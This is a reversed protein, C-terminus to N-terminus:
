RHNYICAGIKPTIRYFTIIKYKSKGNRLLLVYPRSHLHQLPRLPRHHAGAPEGQLLVLGPDAGLGRCYSLFSTKLQKTCFYFM